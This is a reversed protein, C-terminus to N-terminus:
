DVVILPGSPDLQWIGGLDRTARVSHGPARAAAEVLEDSLCVGERRERVPGLPGLVVEWVWHAHAIFTKISTRSKNNANMSVTLLVGWAM